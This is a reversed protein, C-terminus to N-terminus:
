PGPAGLRAIAKRVRQLEAAIAESVGARLSRAIEADHDANQGTLAVEATVCVAYIGELRRVLQTLLARTSDDAASM